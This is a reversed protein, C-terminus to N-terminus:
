GAGGATVPEAPSSLRRRWWELIDAATEEIPRQPRWGAAGRLRDPSGLIIPPDAPRVLAEDVTTTVELGTCSSLSEILEGISRARGSCVNYTGTLGRGLIAVYADATDRIDVFDREAALNGVRLEVRGAGDAEAVAIQRAFSSAAFEESQGPGIQNFSRAIAVGLRFSRAYQEALIEMAAKSSGYPSLPRMPAEESLPMQAPDTGGYVEASSALLIQAEPAEEVVAALLNLVGVANLEFTAQPSRWSERVSAQGAMNVIADPRVAAVASRVSGPDLLDCALDPGAGELSATAVELGADRAAQGLHSGAFGRAGILLV